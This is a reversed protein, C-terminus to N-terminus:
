ARTTKLLKKGNDRAKQVEQRKKEMKKITKDIEKDIKKKHHYANSVQTNYYQQWPKKTVWIIRDEKLGKIKDKYPSLAKTMEKDAKKISVSRKSINPKTVKVKPKVMWYKQVM